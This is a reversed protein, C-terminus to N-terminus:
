IPVIPTTRTGAIRESAIGGCVVPVSEPQTSHIVTENDIVHRHPISRADAEVQVFRPVREKKPIHCDAMVVTEDVM